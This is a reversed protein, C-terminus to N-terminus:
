IQFMLAFALATIVAVVVLLVGIRLVSRKRKMCGLRRRSPQALIVLTLFRSAIIHLPTLLERLKDTRLDLGALFGTVVLSIEALLVTALHGGSRLPVLGIVLRLHFSANVSIASTEVSVTGSGNYVVQDVPNIELYSSSLPSDHIGDYEYTIKYRYVTRSDLSSEKSVNMVAGLTEVPGFGSVTSPNDVVYTAYEADYLRMWSSFGASFVVINGSSGNAPICLPNNNDSLLNSQSAKKSLTFCNGATVTGYTDSSGNWFDYFALYHGEGDVGSGTIVFTGGTGSHDPGSGINQISYVSSINVGGGDPSPEGITCLCRNNRSSKSYSDIVIFGCVYADNFGGTYDVGNIGTVMMIGKDTNDCIPAMNRRFTTFKTNANGWLSTYTDLLVEVLEIQDGNSLSSKDVYYLMAPANAASDAKSIETPTFISVYINDGGGHCIDTLISGSVRIHDYSATSAGFGRIPWKNSISFVGASYAVEYIIGNPGDDDLVYVTTSNGTLSLKDCISIISKFTVDDDLSDQEEEGDNLDLYVLSTGGYKAAIGHTATYDCNTCVKVYTTDTQPRDLAADYFGPSAPYSSGNRKHQHRVWIRSDGNYEGYMAIGNQVTICDIGSYSSDTTTSPTWCCDTVISPKEGSALLACAYGVTTDGFLVPYGYTTFVHPTTEDGEIGQMTGIVSMPDVNKMYISSDSDQDAGSQSTVVGRHFTDISYIQKPM